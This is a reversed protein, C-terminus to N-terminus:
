DGKYAYLRPEEKIIRPTLFILLETRQNKIGRHRFLAGVVPISSLFPVRDFTNAKTIKYIGGIVVTENDNLLVYSEVQQTNITPPGFVAPTTTTTTATGTTSSASTSGTAVLLQPGRSDQNAKLRLLIKNDPTIQPIIELSLVAKKFEISTAGSSTAQQYPIEEGTMIMAKQQNSTVVRPKSVIQTHGEEELASLELDLLIPGLRALALGISAPTTGTSLVSAPIDFNLRDDLPNVNAVNIGQALQNAGALTGSLSRTNSIGFRVGLQAEYTTDVNVIRAEISVQRAPIDLRSIYRTIESLNSEIDRIIVSNTPNDVAVEGRPTLLTGNTGKLVKALAAANTYKLRILKTRLPALNILEQKIQMQKAERMNIDETTSIFIAKGIHRQSLGNSKLVIDLAQEWTVNKLNLTTNGKVNDSIIFNIDSNKAILQLLTKLEINQFYFSMLGTSAVPPPTNAAVSLDALPTKETTVSTTTVQTVPPSGANQAATSIPATNAYVNAINASILLLLFRKSISLDM